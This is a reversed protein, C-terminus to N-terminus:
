IQIINSKIVKDSVSPGSIEPFTEGLPPKTLPTDPNAFLRSKNFFDLGAAYIPNLQSFNTSIPQFHCFNTKILYSVLNQHFCDHMISMYPGINVIICM